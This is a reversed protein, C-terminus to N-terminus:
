FDLSKNGSSCSLNMSPESEQLEPPLHLKEIVFKHLKLKFALDFTEPKHSQLATITQLKKIHLLGHYQKFVANTQKEVNDFSQLNVNVDVLKRIKFILQDDMLHILHLPMTLFCIVNNYRTISKLKALFELLSKSFDESYWVPSGLSNICIRILDSEGSKQALDNLDEIIFSLASSSEKESKRRQYDEFSFYKVNSSNVIKEQDYKKTLDYNIQNSNAGTRISDLKPLAQYRFAIRLDDDQSKVEEKAVNSNEIPMPIDKM